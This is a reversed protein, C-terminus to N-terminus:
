SAQQGQERPGWLQRRTALWEARGAGTSTAPDHTCRVTGDGVSLFGDANCLRCAATEARALRRAQAQAAREAADRIRARATARAEWSQHARRADGCGPCPGVAPQTRHQPCRLPPEVDEPEGDPGPPAPALIPPPEAPPQEAPGRSVSGEGESTVVPPPSFPLPGTQAPGQIPGEVPGQSNDDAAPDPGGSGAPDHGAPSEEYGKLPGHEACCGRPFVIFEARRGSVGPRHRVVFGLEVLEGIVEFVRSRSKLGSWKQLAEIGPFGVRDGMNASDALCMLVLKKSPALDTLAARETYHVAM